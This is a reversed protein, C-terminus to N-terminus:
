IVLLIRRKRRLLAMIGTIAREMLFTEGDFDRTEKGEVLTGVGTKTYFAPIGAGGARLKESIYRTANIGCGNVM